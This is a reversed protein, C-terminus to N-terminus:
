FKSLVKEANHKRGRFLYYKILFLTQLIDSLNCFYFILLLIYKGDTALLIFEYPCKNKTQNIKFDTEIVISGNTNTLDWQCYFNTINRIPLEITGNISADIVGGCVIIFIYVIIKWLYICCLNQQNNIRTIFTINHKKLCKKYDNHYKLILILM